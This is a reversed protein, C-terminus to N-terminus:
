WVKLFFIWVLLKDEGIIQANGQMGPRLKRNKNNLKAEAIFVNDSNVTTSSLQINILKAEWIKQPYADLNIKVLMNEDIYAIDEAPVNLQVLIKDLPAIEFLSQGKTLPSGEVRILDGQIIIGSIPSKIELNDEYYNQLAIQTDLREVELQAIQM